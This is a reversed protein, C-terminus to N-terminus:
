ESFENYAAIGRLLRAEKNAPFPSSPDGTPNDSYLTYIKIACQAKFCWTYM